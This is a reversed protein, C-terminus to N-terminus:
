RHTNPLSAFSVEIPFAEVKSVHGKLANIFRKRFLFDEFCNRLHRGIFSGTGIAEGSGKKLPTPAGDLFVDHSDDVIEIVEMNCVELPDVRSVNNEKWLFLPGLFDGVIPGYAQDVSDGFDNGLQNGDAKSWEHIINDGIGLTGEDLFPADMIIEHIHLIKSLPEV